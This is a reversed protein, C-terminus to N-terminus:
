GQPELLVIQLEEPEGSSTVQLSSIAQPHTVGMEKLFGSVPKREVNLGPSKYQMPVAIAPEILSITEAVKAPTLGDPLGVPLLLVDVRGIREVQMQTPPAGLEGLHCIVVGEYDITYIVNQEVAEGRRRARSSAIGTIFVGGVEYEGPGAVTYRVDRLGPWKVDIPHDILRSSTVIDASARPRQLGTASDEFPDTVVAPHGRETVRFCGLGYWVLETM